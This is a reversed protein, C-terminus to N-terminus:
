KFLASWSCGITLVWGPHCHFHFHFPHSASIPAHTSIFHSSMIYKAKQVLELHFTLSTISYLHSISFSILPFSSITTPFRTSARYSLVLDRELQSLSLCFVNWLKCFTISHFIYYM